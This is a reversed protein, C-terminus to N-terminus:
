CAAKGRPCGAQMFTGSVCLVASRQMHAPQLPSACLALWHSLMVTGQGVAFRALTCLNWLELPELAPAFCPTAVFGQLPARFMALRRSDSTTHSIGRHDRWRAFNSRVGCVAAPSPDCVVQSPESQWVAFIELVTSNPHLVSLVLHRCWGTSHRCMHRQRAVVRFDLM